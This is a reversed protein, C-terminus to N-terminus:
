AAGPEDTDPAIGLARWVDATVVKWANGLRLVPVPFRNAAALTYTQSRGLAFARGATPWLPIMAPLELLESRTM